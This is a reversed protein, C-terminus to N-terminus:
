VWRLDVGLVIKWHTKATIVIKVDFAGLWRMGYSRDTYESNSIMKVNVVDVM